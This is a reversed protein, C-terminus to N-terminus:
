GLEALRAKLQDLEAAQLEDFINDSELRAVSSQILSKKAAPSTLRNLRAVLPALEIRAVTQILERRAHAEETMELARQLQVRRAVTGETSELRALWERSTLPPPAVGAAVAPTPVALRAKRYGDLLKRLAPTVNALVATNQEAFRAAFTPSEFTFASTTGSWGRYEVAIGTAACSPGRGAAAAKRRAGRLWWAILAFAVFTGVAALAGAVIAATMAGAIGIVMVGASAIGSAEHARVHAVCRKCYPFLLSHGSPRAPIPLEADPPTAGCCPCEFPIGFKRTAVEVVVGRM